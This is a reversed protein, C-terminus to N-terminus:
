PAPKWRAGDSLAGLTGSLLRAGDTVGSDLAQADPVGAAQGRPGLVVLRERVTDGDLLWVYPKSRDLRVASAPVLLASQEELLIEGQAFLGHRLAPHPDLALYVSVTRSGPQASPSIRAVRASVTDTLGEARVRARQGIRVKAADQPALAAELELRSLDVIEVVRADVGLREGPQAFRQSVVGPIPATLRADNRSKRSLELAALAAQLTAQSAAENSASSELATPSIFGQAVLARNNALTRQAIDWQARAAQAQQDAQRIRWDFETPDQDGIAQGAKVSDGERVTLRTLEAAVKAKVVATQTARISGSMPQVQTLAARRVTVIEDAPIELPPKAAPAPRQVATSPTGPQANPAGLRASRYWFATAALALALLAVLALTWRRRSM